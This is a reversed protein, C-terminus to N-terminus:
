ARVFPIAGVTRTLEGRTARNASVISLVLGYIVLLVVLAMATSLPSALPVPEDSAFTMLLVVHVALLVGTYLLQSVHWNIARRVVEHGTPTLTKRVAARYGLAGVLVLLNSLMPVCLLLGLGWWWAGAGTTPPGSVPAEQGPALPPPVRDYPTNSPGSPDRPGTPQPSTWESM